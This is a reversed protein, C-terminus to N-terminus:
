NLLEGVLKAFWQRSVQKLGYLSKVFKCVLNEPNPLGEPVVMYVEEYLDAHLFANNVDLRFLSWGKIMDFNANLKMLFEILRREQQSKVLKDPLQCTCLTCTCSQIPDM